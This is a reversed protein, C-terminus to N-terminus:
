HKFEHSFEENFLDVTEPMLHSKYIALDFYYREEFEEMNLCNAVYPSLVMYYGCVKGLTVWRIMTRNDIAKCIDDQTPAGKYQKFLFEKTKKIKDVVKSQLIDPEITGSKQANRFKNRWMKWRIWAKKGTLLNPNILAHEGRSNKISKLIDFQARIYYRYQDIPILGRTEKVLKMCYRFLNCERPDGNKALKGCKEKPFYRPALEEWILAIKFALAQDHTMNYELIQYLRDM